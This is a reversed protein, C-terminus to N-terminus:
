RIIGEVKQWYRMSKELEERDSQLCHDTKSHNYVEELTLGLKGEATGM